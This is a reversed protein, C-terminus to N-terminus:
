RAQYPPMNLPTTMCKQCHCTAAMLPVAHFADPSLFTQSYFARYPDINAQILMEGESPDYFQLGLNEGAGQKM